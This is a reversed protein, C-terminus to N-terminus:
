VIQFNCSLGGILKRQQEPTLADRNLRNRRIESTLKEHEAKKQKRVPSDFVNTLDPNVSLYHRIWEIEKNRSDSESCMDIVNMQPVKGSILVCAIWHCVPYMHGFYNSRIHSAYRVNPKNTRGVYMVKGTDPCNLTYIYVTKM